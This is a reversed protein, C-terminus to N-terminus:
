QWGYEVNIKIEFKIRKRKVARQKTKTKKLKRKFFIGRHKTISFKVENNKKPKGTIPNTM